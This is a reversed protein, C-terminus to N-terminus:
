FGVAMAVSMSRAPCVRSTSGDDDGDVPLAADAFNLSRQHYYTLDGRIRFDSADHGYVSKDYGAMGVLTALRQGTESNFYPFGLVQPYVRISELALLALDHRDTMDIKKGGKNTLGTYFAALGAKIVGPVSLGGAFLFSDLLAAAALDFDRDTVLESELTGDNVMEVLKDRYINLFADKGANVEAVSTGLQEAVQGVFQAPVIALLLSAGQLNLFTDTQEPILTIDLAIKHLEWIVWISADGNIQVVDKGELFTAASERFSETTWRTGTKSFPSGPENGDGYIEDLVPRVIEHDDFPLGLNIGCYQEGACYAFTLDNM